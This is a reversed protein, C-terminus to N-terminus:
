NIGDDVREWYTIIKVFDNYSYFKNTDLKCPIIPGPKKPEFWTICYYLWDALKCRFSYFRIRWKLKFYQWRTIM